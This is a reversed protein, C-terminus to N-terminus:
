RVKPFHEPDIGLAKLHEDKPQRHNEVAVAAGMAAGLLDFLGLFSSRRNANKSM